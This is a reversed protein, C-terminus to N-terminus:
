DPLESKIRREAAKVIDAVADSDKKSCSGCRWVGKFPGTPDYVCLRVKGCEDCKRTSQYKM